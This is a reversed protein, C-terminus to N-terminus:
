RRIPLDDGVLEAHVGDEEASVSTVQVDFPIGALPVPKLLARLLAKSTFDPLDVGAVEIKADDLTIAQARVDLAPKADIRAKV